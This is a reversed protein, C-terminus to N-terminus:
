ETLRRLVAALERRAHRPEVVRDVYGTEAAAWVTHHAKEWAERQADTVSPGLVVKLAADTGMVDITGMPLALRVDAAFSLV